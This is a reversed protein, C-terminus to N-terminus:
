GNSRSSVIERIKAVSIMAVMDEAHLSLEYQEEIVAVLEMHALSDWTDLDKITLDDTIKDASVQLVEAMLASLKEM